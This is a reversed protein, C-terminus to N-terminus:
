CPKEKKSCPSKKPQPCPGPCDRNKIKIEFKEKCRDPQPPRWPPSPCPPKPKDEKLPCGQFESCPQKKKPCHNKEENKPKECGCTYNRKKLGTVIKLENTPKDSIRSCYNPTILSKICKRFVAMTMKAHIIFHRLRHIIGSNKVM